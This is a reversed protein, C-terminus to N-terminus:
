VGLCPAFGGVRNETDKIGLKEECFIRAFERVRVTLSSSDITQKEEEKRMLDDCCLVM